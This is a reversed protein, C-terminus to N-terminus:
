LPRDSSDTQENGDDVTMVRELLTDLDNLMAALHKKDNESPPEYAQSVMNFNVFINQTAYNKSFTWDVSTTCVPSEIEGPNGCGCMENAMIFQHATNIFQRRKRENAIDRTSFAILEELKRTADPTFPPQRSTLLWNAMKSAAYAKSIQPLTCLLASVALCSVKMETNKSIPNGVSKSSLTVNSGQSAIGM